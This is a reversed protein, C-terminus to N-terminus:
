RCTGDDQFLGSAAMSSLSRACSLIQQNLPDNKLADPSINRMDKHAAVIKDSLKRTNGLESNLLPLANRDADTSVAVSVLRLNTIADARYAAVSEETVPYGNQVASVLASRWERVVAMAEIGAKMFDKSFTPAASQVAEPTSPAVSSAAPLTLTIQSGKFGLSGNTLRALEEIDVYSRGDKQIVSAQGTQGSVILTRNTPTNQSLVLISTAFLAALILVSSLLKKM